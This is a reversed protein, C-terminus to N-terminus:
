LTAKSTPHILWTKLRPCRMRMVTALVAARADGHSLRRGRGSMVDTAIVQFPITADELLTFQQFTDLLERSYATLVPRRLSAQTDTWEARRKAFGLFLTTFMGTLILWRSPSIHVGWTGALIRLMFGSSICFVDIIPQHKLEFSYVVNIALYALVIWLVRVDALTATVM